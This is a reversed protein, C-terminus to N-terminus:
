PHGPQETCGGLEALLEKGTQNLNRERGRAQAAAVRGPPLGAIADKVFRGATDEFWQSNGFLPHKRALACLEIADEFRGQNLYLLLAAQLGLMLPMFSGLELGLRLGDCIHIKAYGVNELKVAVCGLLTMVWSQEERMGMRQYIELSDQLRKQADSCTRKELDVSGLVFSARAVECFYDNEQAYLLGKQASLYAQRYLGHLAEAFSLLILSHVWTYHYGYDDCLAVCKRLLSISEQYRGQWAFISGLRIQGFVTGSISKLEERLALSKQILTESVELQGRYQAITGMWHLLIVRSKHDGMSNRTQFSDQYYKQAKAYNGLSLEINGLANLVVAEWVPNNVSQFSELSREYLSRAIEWNTHFVIRGKEFLALAKVAEVDSRDQDLLNLGSFVDDLLHAAQELHGLKQEFHALWTLMKLKIILGSGSQTDTLTELAIQHLDRGDSLRIRADFFIGFGEIMQELRQLNPVEVAWNWALRANALDANMALLASEQQQGKMIEGWEQVAAAYYASHRDHVTHAEAPLQTLKEAAYQRTLEHITYRNGSIRHLFTKNILSQIVQPTAKVVQEAADRTFGGQFVSIGRVFKREQADLLRWSHELVARMSRQRVPLDLWQSQLIDFGQQIRIAIETLTYSGVWAAALLIALPLGEVLDCIRIIDPIIESTLDFGPDVRRVSEVFLRVASYNNINESLDLSSDRERDPYDLGSVNLINEGKASLWVQSTVLVTVGSAIRLLELVWDVSELLNEFSDLILLISRERLYGWLQQCPDGSEHFTFDLADAVAMALNTTNPLPTPPVLYVGDPYNPMEVRAAELALRTKGSGGVGVLTILRCIPDNLLQRLQRM